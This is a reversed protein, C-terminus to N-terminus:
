PMSEGLWQRLRAVTDSDPELEALRNALTRAMVRDGAHGHYLALTSLSERHYPHRELVRELWRRAQRSQGLQHLAVALVHGFRPENPALEAARELAAVADPLRQQRVLSLGLAHHLEASDPLRELGQRLIAAVDTEAARSRQLEALNIWASVTAPELQLARGYASQAADHLGRQAHLNGLAVNAEPRDANFQLAAIYEDLAAQFPIRQEPSLAQEPAGALAAAAEIRVARVPDTLMPITQARRRDSDAGALSEVATMRLLPQAAALAQMPLDAQAPRLWPTLARIASARVIAPQEPHVIVHELREVLGPAGVSAAHLAHAFDMSTDSGDPFWELLRDRAWQDDRDAHCDTCANPVGYAMSLDPRPIRFAHDHRRDIEMFTVRPMHCASCQGGASDVPHGTHDPHDFRDPQHCQACLANGPLRFELSHPQHCDSCTVGAQAMRSQKFPGWNFVEALMQGDPHYQDPDLLAPRHTDLLNGGHVTDGLLRSARGHCRGCTDIEVPAQGPQSRRATGSDADPLWAIGRREQFAVALGAGTEPSAGARAWELHERGPGHCAECAVNIESWTSDYTDNDPDYGKVVATSHCDACMHNWNQNRATWHLPHDAGIEQDPYLHFWRQGGEAAPRSDWAIGLAQLRGGPLEILYQQLPEVGFTYAIQFEDLEGTPGDTVVFYAGDREVFESTVGAYHFRARDFDGLVSDPGAEQMALAHHSGQWDRHEVTHCQACVAAGVHGEAAALRPTRESMGAAEPSNASSLEASPDGACAVLMSLAVPLLLWLARAM